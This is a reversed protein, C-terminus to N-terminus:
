FLEGLDNQPGCLRGDWSKGQPYLVKLIFTAVSKLSIGSNVSEVGIDSSAWCAVSCYAAIDPSM